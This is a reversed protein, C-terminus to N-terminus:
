KPSKGNLTPKASAHNLLDLVTQLPPVYGRAVVKDNIVLTPLIWTPYLSKRLHISLRLAPKQKPIPKGGIPGSVSCRRGARGPCLIKIENKEKHPIIKRTIVTNTFGNPM